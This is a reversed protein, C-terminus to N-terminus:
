IKKFFRQLLYDTDTAMDNTLCQVSHGTM